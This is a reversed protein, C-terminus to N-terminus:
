EELLVEVGSVVAAGTSPEFAIDIAETALIGRFEKVVSRRAAGAEQAVDLDEVVLQGQVRVDFVRVGPAASGPECFYLRVTYRREPIEQPDGAGADVPIRISAVGEVGSAAVWNLGAGSVTLPHFRFYKLQEGTVVVNVKPSPGGM